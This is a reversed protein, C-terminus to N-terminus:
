VIRRNTVTLRVKRMDRAFQEPAIYKKAKLNERVTGLDMPSDIVEEYDPFENKDVRELFIDSFSDSVLRDLVMLCRRLPQWVESPRQAREMLAREKDFRESEEKALLQFPERDKDSLKRWTDGMLTMVEAQTAGPIRKQYFSRM